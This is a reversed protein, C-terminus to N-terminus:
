LKRGGRFYRGVRGAQLEWWGFTETLWRYLSAGVLTGLAISALVFAVNILGDMRGPESLLQNVTLLGMAGPVLLWFSPLFTVMSPPGKFRKQILYGLPTAVLTGFFGSIEKSLPVAALQQAAFTLLLVLLVWLFSNRPVSFTLHVGIGFVVVGVWPAVLAWPASVSERTADFLNNPTYGVMVAGATLGFALLVLEVVGTLLRSSGSVMDGYALEVMGFTLMAGPLFSVLPAVLAYQPDVPLGHKVALFVLLSVLAASVVSLPAALIPRDRNLAKLAGVIAGLVAAAVLNRLAPMLILAVGMSLITHGVVVGARGFRPAKRLLENLRELGQRPPVEGSQAAEGLTYVDAIQDLRLTQTPGPALTVREETGDHLTIFVATPFAVVRSHRMGYASAVRRLYLEALATQEGSAIYAQGLRYMFELLEGTDIAPSQTAM